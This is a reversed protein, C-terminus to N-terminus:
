GAQFGGLRHHDVVAFEGQNGVRDCRHLRACRRYPVLIGVVDTIKPFAAVHLCSRRIQTGGWTVFSSNETERTVALVMSGRPTQASIPGSPRMTTCAELWDGNLKRLPMAFPLKLMGGVSIRTSGPSTPPEKPM